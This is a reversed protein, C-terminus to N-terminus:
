KKPKKKSVNKVEPAINGRPDGLLELKDTTHFAKQNNGVKEDLKELIIDIKKEYSLDGEVLEDIREKLENLKSAAPKLQELNPTRDDIGRALRELRELPSLSQDPVHGFLKGSLAALEAAAKQNASPSIEPDPVMHDLRQTLSLANKKLTEKKM